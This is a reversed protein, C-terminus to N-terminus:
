LVLFCVMTVFVWTFKKGTGLRAGHFKNGCTDCVMKPNGGFKLATQLLRRSWMKSSIATLITPRMILIEPIAYSANRTRRFVCCNCSDM